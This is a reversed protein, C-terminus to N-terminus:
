CWSGPATAGSVGPGGPNIVLAGIPQSPDVAPLKVVPLIFRPGDPKPYDFPVVLQACQFGGDCPQWDLRQAHYASLSTPEPLPAPATMSTCATACAALSLTVALWRVPHM